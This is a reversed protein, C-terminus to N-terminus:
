VSMAYINDDNNSRKKGDVNWQEPCTSTRNIRQGRLSVVLFISIVKLVTVLKFILFFRVTDNAIGRDKAKRVDIKFEPITKRITLKEM